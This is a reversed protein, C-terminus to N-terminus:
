GYGMSEYEAMYERDYTETNEVFKRHRLQQQEEIAGPIASEFTQSAYYPTTDGSMDYEVPQIHYEVPQLPQAPEESFAVPNVSGLQEDELEEFAEMSDEDQDLTPNNNEAPPPGYLYMPTARSVTPDPPWDYFREKRVRSYPVAISRPSLKKSSSQGHLDSSFPPREGVMAEMNDISPRKGGRRVQRRPAVLSGLTGVAGVAGSAVGTAMGAVGSVMGYVNRKQNSDGSGTSMNSGPAGYYGSGDHSMNEREAMAAEQKERERQEARKELYRRILINQPGVLIVTALFFFLKWPFVLLLLFLALLAMFIWFSLFPDRWTTANFAIRIVYIVTRGMRMMPGLFSALIRNVPNASKFELALLKDFEDLPYKRKLAAAAKKESEDLDKYEKNEKEKAYASVSAGESEMPPAAVLEYAVKWSWKHFLYEIKKLTVQPPVKRGAVDNNQPTGLHVRSKARRSGQEGYGYAAQGDLEEEEDEDELNDMDFMTDGMGTTTIVTEDDGSDYSSEEDANNQDGAEDVAPSQYYVSLRGHLRQTGGGAKSPALSDEVGFKPYGYRHSFPFEKHDEMKIDDDDAAAQEDGDLSDYRRLNRQGTSRPGRKKARKAIEISKFNGEKNQMSNFVLGNFVELATLQRYGENYGTQVVFHYYNEWYQIMAYMLWFPPVLRVAETWVLCLGGIFIYLSIYPKEYFIADLTLTKALFQFNVHYLNFERVTARFATRSYKGPLDAGYVTFAVNRFTKPDACPITPYGGLLPNSKLMSKPGKFYSLVAARESFWHLSFRLRIVGRKRRDYALTSARLPFTIDYETNPRLTAVDISVRGCFVDNEKNKRVRSDFVGVFLQTYAHHLPFVAARRSECPWMPSRYGQIVDTCFAADGSVLYVCVDPKQRDLSVCGLVEVRLSGIRGDYAPTGFLERVQEPVQVKKSPKMTPHIYSKLFEYFVSPATSDAYIQEETRYKPEPFVHYPRVRFKKKITNKGHYVSYRARRGESRPRPATVNAMSSQAHSLMDRMNDTPTTPPAGTDNTDFSVNRIPPGEGNTDSDGGNKKGGKKRWNRLASPSARVDAGGRRFRRNAGETASGFGLSDLDNDSSKNSGGRSFPNLRQRLKKFKSPNHSPPEGGYSSDQSLTRARGRAGGGRANVRRPVNLLDVDDVSKTLRKRLRFRGKNGTPDSHIGESGSNIGDSSYGYGGGASGLAAGSDEDGSDGSNYEDSDHRKFLGRRRPM